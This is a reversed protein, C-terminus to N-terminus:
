GSRNKREHGPRDFLDISVNSANIHGLISFQRLIALIEEYSNASNIQASAQYQAETESLNVQLQNFLNERVITNALASAATRLAAIEDGSWVREYDIQEFGICGPAGHQGAVPFQLISRVGLATMFEREEDPLQSTIEAICGEKSLREIWPQLWHASIRRLSPNNIQAPAEPAHWEAVQHWYPGRFDIQAEMYYARSAQAAEGLLHLVDTIAAFGRETLDAVAQAVSKQYRVSIQLADRAVQTQEFLQANELALTLQDTVQEILILEDQTWQRQPDEDLIEYLLSTEQLVSAAKQGDPADLRTEPRSAQAPIEGPVYLPRGLAPTAPKDV